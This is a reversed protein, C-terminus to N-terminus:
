YHEVLRAAKARQSPPRHLDLSAVSLNDHRDLVVVLAFPDDVVENDDRDAEVGAPELPQQAALGAALDLVSQGSGLELSRDLEVQRDGPQARGQVQRPDRPESLSRAEGVQAAKAQQAVADQAAIYRHVFRRATGCRPTLM